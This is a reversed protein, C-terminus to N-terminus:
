LLLDMVANVACFIHRENLPSDPSSSTDNEEELKDSNVVTISENPLEESIEVCSENEETTKSENESKLTVVCNGRKIHCCWHSMLGSKWSM